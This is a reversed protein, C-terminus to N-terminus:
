FQWLGKVAFADSSLILATILRTVKKGSHRGMAKATQRFVLLQTLLYYIFRINKLTVIIEFLGVM